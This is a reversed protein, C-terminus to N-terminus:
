KGSRWERLVDNAVEIAESSFGGHEKPPSSSIYEALGVLAQIGPDAEIITGPSKEMHMDVERGLRRAGIKLSDDSGM